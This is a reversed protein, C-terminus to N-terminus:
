AARDSRHPLTPEGPQQSSHEFRLRVEGYSSELYALLTWIFVLLGAIELTEEVNAILKYSLNDFGHREGYYGGIMDFGLAGGVYLAAAAGVAFRTRRPLHLFFRLFLLAFIGTLVAAPIVWAFYFIGTPEYGLFDITCGTMFEHIQTAEDIALYGFVASLVLWHWSYPARSQRELVGVLLLLFASITLLAIAFSTPVNSENDMDFLRVLGFVTDHGTLFKTLQGAVSAGLLFATVTALARVLVSRNLVVVRMKERRGAM